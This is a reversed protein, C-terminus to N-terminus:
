FYRVTVEIDKIGKEDLANVIYCGVTCDMNSILETHSKDLGKTVLYLRYRGVQKVLRQEDHPCGVILISFDNMWNGKPNFSILYNGDTEKLMDVFYKNINSMVMNKLENKKM